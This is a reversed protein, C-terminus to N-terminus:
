LQPGCLDKEATNWGDMWNTHDEKSLFGAMGILPDGNIYADYGSAWNYGKSFHSQFEDKITAISTPLKHTYAVKGLEFAVNEFEDM